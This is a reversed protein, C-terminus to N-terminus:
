VPTADGTAGDRGFCKVFGGFGLALRQPEIWAHGPHGVRNLVTRRIFQSSESFLCNVFNQRQYGRGFSSVYRVCGGFSLFNDFELARKVVGDGLRLLKLGKAVFTGVTVLWLRDRFQRLSIQDFAPYLNDTGASAVIQMGM